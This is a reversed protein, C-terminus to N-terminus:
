AWCTSDRKQLVAAVDPTPTEYPWHCEVTEFGAVKAARIADPLALDAWLFGLNASFRM